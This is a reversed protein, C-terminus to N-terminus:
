QNLYCIFNVTTPYITNQLKRQQPEEKLLSPAKAEPLAEVKFLSTDKARKNRLNRLRKPRLTLDAWPLKPDIELERRLTWKRRL